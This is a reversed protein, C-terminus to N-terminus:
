ELQLAHYAEANDMFKVAGDRVAASDIKLIM